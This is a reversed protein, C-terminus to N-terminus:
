SVELQVVVVDAIHDEIDVIGPKDVTVKLTTKGKRYKLEQEPTSHVHLEGARDSNVTITVPEGVGVKLRKGNPTVQDGHVTVAIPAASPASSSTSSGTSSSSADTPPTSGGCGALLLGTALLAAVTPIRTNATLNRTNM